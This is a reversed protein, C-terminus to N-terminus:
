ELNIQLEYRVFDTLKAVSDYLARATSNTERTIWFMESCQEEQAIKEIEKILARAIGQNRSNESVFLDELYLHGNDGWTSLQVHFHAIGVLSGNQFAGLGRIQRDLLRDWVLNRSDDSTTAEYFELYAGYLQSWESKDEPRFNRYELTM